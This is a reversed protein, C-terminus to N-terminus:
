IAYSYIAVYMTIFVFKLGLLSKLVEYDCAKHLCSCGDLFSENVLNPDAEIIKRVTDTQKSELAKQFQDLLSLYNKSNNQSQSQKLFAVCEKANLSTALQFPLMKENDEILIGPDQGLDEGCQMVIRCTTVSDEEIALHLLTYGKPHRMSTFHDKISDSTLLAMMAEEPLPLSVCMHAISWTDGHQEILEVLKTLVKVTFVVPICTTVNWFCPIINCCLYFFNKAKAEKFTNLLQFEEKSVEVAVLFWCFATNGHKKYCYFKLRRVPDEVDQGYDTYVVDIDKLEKASLCRVGEM